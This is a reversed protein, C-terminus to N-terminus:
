FVGSPLSPISPAGSPMSAATGEEECLPVWCRYWGTLLGLGLPVLRNQVVINGEGPVSSGESVRLLTFIVIM